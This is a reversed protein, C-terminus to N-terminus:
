DDVDEGDAQYYDAQQIIDERVSSILLDAGIYPAWGTDYPDLGMAKRVTQGRQGVSYSRSLGFWENMDGIAVSEFLENGKGVVWAVAAALGLRSGRRAFVDADGRAARALARRFATRYETSELEAALADLHELVESVAPRIEEAVGGWDMPEDPLPAADLGELAERDGVRKALHDLMVDSLGFPVVPSGLGLSPAVIEALEVVQSSVEEPVALRDHAFEIYRPLAEVVAAHFQRDAYIKRPYWDNLFIDLRTTSWGYPAYRGYRCAFDLITEVAERRDPSRLGSAFPSQLFADTIDAREEDEFEELAFTREGAPFLRALWSLLPRVQPWTETEYRPITRQGVDVAYALDAGVTRPDAAIVDLEPVERASQILDEVSGDVPFGDAVASGANHDVLVAFAFSTRDIEVGFTIHSFDGFIDLTRYPDRVTTQDLRRLWRPLQHARSALEGRISQIAGEDDLIEAWVTLAGTTERRDTGIFSELLSEFSPQDDSSDWPDPTTADLLSSALVLTELPGTANLARQLSRM